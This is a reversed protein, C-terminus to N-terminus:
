WSTDGVKQKPLHREDEPFEDAATERAMRGLTPAALKKEAESPEPVAEKAAPTAAAEGTPETEMADTAGEAVADKSEAPEKGNGDTAGAGEGGEEASAGEKADAGEDEGAAKRAARAAEEERHKKWAEDIAEIRPTGSQIPALRWALIKDVGDQGEVGEECWRCRWLNGEVEPHPLPGIASLPEARFRRGCYHCPIHAGHEKTLACKDDGCDPCTWYGYPATNLKPTLCDLHWTKPCADCMLVEGGKGCGSCLLDHEDDIAPPPPPADAQPDFEDEEGDEGLMEEFRDDEQQPPLPM